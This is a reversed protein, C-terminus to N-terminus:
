RFPVVGIARSGRSKRLRRAERIGGSFGNLYIPELIIIDCVASQYKISVRSSIVRRFDPSLIFLKNAPANIINDSLYTVVLGADNIFGMIKYHGIFYKKRAGFIPELVKEVAVYVLRDSFIETDYDFETSCDLLSKKIKSFFPSKKISIPHDAVRTEDVSSIHDELPDSIDPTVEYQTKLAVLTKLAEQISGNYQTHSKKLADLVEQITKHRAQAEELVEVTYQVSEEYQPEIEALAELQRVLDVFNKKLVGAELILLDFETQPKTESDTEAPQTVAMDEAYSFPLTILVGIFLILKM